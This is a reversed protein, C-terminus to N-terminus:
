SAEKVESRMHQEFREFTHEQQTDLLTNCYSSLQHVLRQEPIGHRAALAPVHAWADDLLFTRDDAQVFRYIDVAAVAPKVGMRSKIKNGARELARLVIQEGAAVVAAHSTPVYGPQASPVRGEERAQKRVEGKARDPIDNVPHGKLSPVSPAETPAPPATVPALPPADSEAPVLPVGLAELAARVLDPTTSGSAVKRLFWTKREEELMADSPDFGTERLLAVGTLEGRDYLEFAEKSRNPRLRMDSTDARISFHSIVEGDMAADGRLLPRLYGVALANTILRLLPESHMKISSEDAQWAAWHNGSGAGLLMEPPMDMGLALRRIAETRLEIAKADLETWFTMHKVAAIADAPATIVIPVLASPNARDSIATAMTEQIVTMLDEANNAQRTVQGEVEQPAPFTMESPMLLIGAGALRSDVQAAVHDTLKTIEGLISLVARAPSIAYQPHLPDPRWLRAVYVDEPDVYDPLPENNITWPGDDTSRKLETSAVIEWHDSGTEHDPYGLIFCEGAVAFHIGILRLMESRGDPDGFLSDVYEFAPGESLVKPKGDVQQVAQLNAKSVLNGIWDCAYRFEGITHYFIWSERQWGSSRSIQTFNKLSTGSNIRAASAVLSNSSSPLARRNRGM